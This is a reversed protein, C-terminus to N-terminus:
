EKVGKRLYEKGYAYEYESVWESKEPRFYFVRTFVTDNPNRTLYNITLVTDTIDYKFKEPIGYLIENGSVGLALTDIPLSSAMQGDESYGTSDTEFHYFNCYHYFHSAWNTGKLTQPINSNNVGEMMICEYYQVSYRRFKKREELRTFFKSCTMFDKNTLQLENECYTLVARYKEFYCEGFEDQQAVNLTYITGGKSEVFSIAEDEIIGLADLCECVSKLQKVDIDATTKESCSTVLFLFLFFTYRSRM